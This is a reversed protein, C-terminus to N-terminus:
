VTLEVSCWGIFTRLSQKPSGRFSVQKFGSILSTQHHVVMTDFSQCPLGYELWLKDCHRTIDSISDFCDYEAKLGYMLISPTVMMSLCLWM